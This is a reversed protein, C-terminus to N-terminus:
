QKRRHQLCTRRFPLHATRAAPLFMPPCFFSIDKKRGVIKKGNSADAGSVREGPLYATRPAPLFMPASFHSENKGAGIKRGDNREGDNLLRLLQKTGSM